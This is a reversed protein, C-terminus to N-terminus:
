LQKCKNMWECRGCKPHLEELDTTINGCECETTHVALVHKPYLECHCLQQYRQRIKTSLDENCPLQLKKTKM